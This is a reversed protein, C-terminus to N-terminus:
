DDRPKYGNLDKILIENDKLWQIVEEETRNANKVLCYIFINRGEIYEAATNKISQPLKDFAMQIPHIRM